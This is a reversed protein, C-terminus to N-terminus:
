EAALLVERLWAFGSCHASWCFGADSAVARGPARAGGAEARLSFTSTIFAAGGPLPPLPMPAAPPAGSTSWPLRHFCLQHPWLVWPVSITSKRNIAGIRPLAAAYLQEMDDIAAKVDDISPMGRRGHQVPGCDPLTSVRIGSRDRATLGSWVDRELGAVCSRCDGQWNPGM